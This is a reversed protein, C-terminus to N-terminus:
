ADVGAARALASAMDAHLRRSLLRRDAHPAPQLPLAQVQAVLRRARCVRWLSQGLTTAGEYPVSPSPVCGNEAYLLLLPQVQAQARVAAQLLSSHFGLLRSGDSTTGEPFLALTHGATLAGAMCDVARAADRPRNRDVLLTGSGAVLWGVLPWRAIDQKAVFRTHPLLAHIVVIDLWSVHNAVILQAGAAPMPPAQLDVQLLQLARRSWASIRAHRGAADLGHFQLRVQLAGQLLHGALLALRWSGQATHLLRRAITRM